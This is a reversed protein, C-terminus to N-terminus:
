QESQESLAQNSILVKRIVEAQQETQVANEMFSAASLLQNDNKARDALRRNLSASEELTRLAVWLATELSEAHQALLSSATYAHGVRCRFRLLSDENVEWLTGHCDPCAITAPKGLKDMLEVPPIESLAFEDEIKLREGLDNAGQEIVLPAEPAEHALTALLHGLEALPVSYDVDKVRRLASSPMDPYLADHPEQVVALGGRQKISMLGSTGDDLMGTLVVGIVRRGYYRAAARFLPDIAPRHLNEKPGRSVRIFGPELLLHFNPPAVYIQGLQIAEGDRPHSVPLPGAMSLITPLLGPGEPATHLVIFVAAALDSPLDRVLRQLAEVGGASAGVVIIDHGSDPQDAVVDGSM